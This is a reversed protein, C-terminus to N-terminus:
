SSSEVSLVFMVANFLAERSHYLRERERERERSERLMNQYLDQKHM